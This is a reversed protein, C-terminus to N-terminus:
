LFSFYTGVILTHPLTLTLSDPLPSPHVILGHERGTRRSVRPPGSQLLVYSLPGWLVVNCM